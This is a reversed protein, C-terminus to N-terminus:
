MLAEGQNKKSLSIQPTFFGAFTCGVSVRKM